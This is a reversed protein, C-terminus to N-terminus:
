KNDPQERRKKDFAEAEQISILGDGDSDIARFQEDTGLFERRSVDGDGNRDMKRFWEPGPPPAAPQPTRARNLGSGGGFAVTATYRNSRTNASAPGMRFTAQSCRPIEIRSIADDGDRDLDALLKVANRLERVSLRGDGNTDILEFLGKGESTIGVTACSQRAAAQLEQFTDLYALVEKSFLMGDGDRDMAKFLNRYLPSRMAEGMDLYGNNDRDAEKFAQLYQEREQKSAQAADVKAVVLAKLDLRTGNMELMLVGEKGARVNAELPAGRKVLEVKGKQGLDVQLELDPPRQAFRSLEETDLSGDGDMDLLAFAAQDLGLDKQTVKTQMPQGSKNGKGYLQQLRRALDSKSAGPHLLWFPGNGGGQVRSQEYLARALRAQALAVAYQDGGVVTGQAIEDPTVIEDDNRDRKMLVAPAAALEEKSLKGDGNTDLLKFLADNVSDSNAVGRGGMQALLLEREAAILALRYQASASDQRGSEPVQFPTAGVRRFYTALEERTVKGDSNADLQSLTAMGNGYNSGFLVGPSSLRQVEIKELVGDGNTDLYKFVRTVYDEWAASLPRGDVTIHLRFLIPRAEAFHVLDQAESEKQPTEASSSAAWCAALGAVTLCLFRNM